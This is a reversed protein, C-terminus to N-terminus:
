HPTPVATNPLPTVYCPNSLTGCTPQPSPDPHILTCNCGPGPDNSTPRPGPTNAATTPGAPHATRSPAPRSRTPTPSPADTETATAATATAATLTPSPTPALSPSPSLSPTPTPSPTPSVAPASTPPQAVAPSATHQGAFGWVALATVAVVATAAILAGALRRRLFWPARAAPVAPEAAGVAAAIPERQDDTPAAEGADTM